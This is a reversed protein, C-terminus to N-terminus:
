LCGDNRRGPRSRSFEIGREGCYRLLHANIFASDNDSHIGLILYPFKEEIRKMGELTWVQAKNRVSVRASWDTAPDVADITHIYDGKVNGGDHGVFLTM